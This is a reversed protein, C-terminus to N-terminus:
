TAWVVSGGTLGAGAASLLLTQRRVIGRAAAEHSWTFPISAASSNGFEAVSSVLQGPAIGLQKRTAEMIRANAQHPVWHDVATIGLKARDLAERATRAMMGVAETFVARGDAIVMLTEDAGIDASFPKRSGGAPIKILDYGAGHSALSVGAIGAARATPQLLVAGAADSFLIASGRDSFNIRRSLINAAVVLVPAAHAKVFADAFTLAYLFGACAGAMDIAGSATLGLKYALLPASPPLLHDPTSTALITLAISAPDIGGRTLAMEGAKAAIDTLAEDPEAWRRARIGTRAEIWGADLGLRAEIEANPVRRAPAYHGLGIIEAGM